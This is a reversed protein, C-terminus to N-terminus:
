ELSEGLATIADNMLAVIEDRGIKDKYALISVILKDKHIWYHMEQFVITDKSGTELALYIQYKVPPSESSDVFDEILKVEAKSDFTFEESLFPVEPQESLSASSELKSSFILYTNVKKVNSRIGFGFNGPVYQLLHKNSFVKDTDGKDYFDYNKYFDFKKGREYLFHSLTDGNAVVGLYNDEEKDDKFYADKIDVFDNGSNDAGYYELFSPHDRYTFQIRTEQPLIYFIIVFSTLIVFRWITQSKLVKKRNISSVLDIGLAVILVVLSLLSLQKAGPYFLLQFILSLVLSCSVVGYLLTLSITRLNTEEPKSIWWNAFLYTTALLTGTIFLLQDFEIGIFDRIIISVVFAIGLVREIM